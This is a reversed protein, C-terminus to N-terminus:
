VADEVAAAQYIFPYKNIAWFSSRNTSLFLVILFLLSVQFSVPGLFCVQSTDNGVHVSVHIGSCLLSTCCFSGSLHWLYSISIQGLALLFCVVRMEFVLASPSPVCHTGVKFFAQIKIEEADREGAGLRREPCKRLLQLFSWNLILCSSCFSSCFNRLSFCLAPGVGWYRRM